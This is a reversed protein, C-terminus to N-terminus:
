ALPLIPANLAVKIGASTRLWSRAVRSLSDGNMFSILAFISL